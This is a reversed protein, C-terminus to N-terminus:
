PPQLSILLYMLQFCFNLSHLVKKIFYVKTTMQLSVVSKNHFLVRSSFAKCFSGFNKQLGVLFRKSANKHSNSIRQSTPKLDDAVNRHRLPGTIRAVSKKLKDRLMTENCTSLTTSRIVVAHEVRRAVFKLTALQFYNNCFTSSPEVKHLMSICSAVSFNTALCTSCATTIRAVVREVQLYAVINCSM